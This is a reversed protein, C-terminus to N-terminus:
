REEFQTDVIRWNTIESPEGGAWKITITANQAISGGFSNTANITETYVFTSDGLDKVNENHHFKTTTPDKLNSMIVVRAVDKVDSNDPTSNGCSILTLFSFTLFLKKM